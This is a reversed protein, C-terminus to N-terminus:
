KGRVEQEIRKLFELHDATALPMSSIYRNAVMPESVRKVLHWTSKYVYQTPPFPGVQMETICLQGADIGVAEAVTESLAAFPAAFRDFMHDFDIVVRSVYQRPVLTTIRRLHFQRATWALFEDLVLDSEDTNRTSVLLGDSYIDLSLVPISLSDIVIVGNQFKRAENPTDLKQPVTMFRYREIITAAVDLLFPGGRMPRIEDVSILQLSRGEESAVLKM